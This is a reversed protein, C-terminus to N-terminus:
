ELENEESASVVAAVAQNKQQMLNFNSKTGSNPYFPSFKNSPFQNNTNSTIGM